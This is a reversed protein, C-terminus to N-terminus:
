GPPICGSPSQDKIRKDPDSFFMEYWYRGKGPDYYRLSDFEEPITHIFSTRLFEALEQYYRLKTKLYADKVHNVQDCESHNLPRLQHKVVKKDHKIIQNTAYHYLFVVSDSQSHLQRDYLVLSSNDKHSLYGVWHRQSQKPMPTLM